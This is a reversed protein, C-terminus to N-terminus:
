CKVLSYTWKRTASKPSWRVEQVMTRQTCSQEQARMDRHSSRQTTVRHTTVRHSSRQIADDRHHCESCHVSRISHGAQGGPCGPEKDTGQGAALDMLLDKRSTESVRYNLAECLRVKPLGRAFSVAWGLVSLCLWGLVQGFLRGSGDDCGSFVTLISWLWDSVLRFDCQTGWRQRWRRWRRAGRATAAEVPSSGLFPRKTM